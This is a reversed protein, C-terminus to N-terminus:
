LNLTTDQNNLYPFKIKPKKLLAYKNKFTKLFHTPFICCTSSLDTTIKCYIYGNGNGFYM